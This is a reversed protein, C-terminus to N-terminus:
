AAGCASPASTGTPESAIGPTWQAQPDLRQGSRTRMTASIDLEQGPALLLNVSAVKRGEHELLVLKVPEGNATLGTFEGGTPAYIRLIMRMSGKPAHSGDGVVYRTLGKGGPPASSRLVLGAELTQAGARTCGLSQLSGESRLYYQMKGVTVDNLYMGVHPVGGTDKPLAGAVPTGQLRRQEAPHTSWVLVRRRQAVRGLESVTKRQDIQGYLLGNFVKRAADVFYIDQQNPDPFRQYALSLLTEVVNDSDLQQGRVQVPGTAALVASLAIPDVSIVGDVSEGFVREYMASMLEATRPFDPTLNTERVDTGLGDGYMELEEDRLPLVPRAFIPFNRGARRSELTVKGNQARLVSFAGPLGGTARVEANNQVALLYTRPGEAGLMPPLLTTVASAARTSSELTEFQKQIETTARSLPPLLGDAELRSVRVAGSSVAVAMRDIDPGITAIKGLDFGGDESRLEGENLTSYLKLASPLASQSVDDLAVSVVQVAKFNRGVVPVHGVLDWMINDSNARATHSAEAFGDLSRRAGRVDDRSLQQKVQAAQSRAERLALTTRVVQYSFLLVLLLLVLGLGRRLLRDPSPTESDQRVVSRM